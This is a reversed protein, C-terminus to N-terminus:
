RRPLALPPEGTVSRGGGGGDQVGAVAPPAAGVGAGCERVAPLLELLVDARHEDDDEDREARLEDDDSMPCRAIWPTTSASIKWTM